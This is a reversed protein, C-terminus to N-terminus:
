KLEKIKTISSTMSAGDDLISDKNLQYVKQTYDQAVYFDIESDIDKLIVISQSFNESLSEIFPKYITDDFASAPADVIFPFTQNMKSSSLKLVSSIISLKALDNQAGHGPNPNGNKDIFDITYDEPNIRSYLIVLNPNKIISEQISNAQQEIQSVFSKKEISIQERAIEEILEVYEKSISEPTNKLQEINSSNNKLNIQEKIIERDIENKRSNLSDRTKTKKYLDSEISKFSSKIQTSDIDKINSNQKLLTDIESQIESIELNIQQLAETNRAIKKNYNKFDDIANKQSFKLSPISSSLDNVRFEMERESDDLLDALNTKMKDFHSKVTEYENSNEQFDRGCFHCNLDSLMQEIIPDGPIGMKLKSKGEEVKKNKENFFEQFKKECNEIVDSFGTTMWDKLFSKRLIDSLEDGVALAHKKEHNKSKLENKLRPYEGLTTLIDIYKQKELELNEVDSKYRELKNIIEEHEGRLRNLNEQASNFAKKKKNDARLNNNYKTELKKKLEKTVEYIKEFYKLYSIRDVANRLTNSNEFDILENLNEGKFLIYERINQPFFKNSIERIVELPNDQTISNGTIEDVYELLFEPSSANLTGSAVNFVQKKSLIYDKNDNEFLLVIECDIHKIGNQIADNEASKNLIFESDVFEDERREILWQFAEFLSTKGSGVTGSILNLGNSFEFENSGKYSKFNNLIIKRLIM